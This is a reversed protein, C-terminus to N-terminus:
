PSTTNESPQLYEFYESVCHPLPFDRLPHAERSIGLVKNISSSFCVLYLRAQRTRRQHFFTGRAFPPERCGSIRGVSEADTATDRRMLWVLLGGRLM